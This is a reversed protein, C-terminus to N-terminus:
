GVRTSEEASRARDGRVGCIFLGATIASTALLSGWMMLRAIGGWDQWCGSLGYFALIMAAGGNSVIGVWVTAEPYEGRRVARLGFGYGVVLAIYAMGLLRLYIIPDPVPLGLSSLISAPFLLMPVCWAVITVIIKVKMVISLGQNLALSSRRNRDELNREIM